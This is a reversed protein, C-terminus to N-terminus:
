HLLSHMDVVQLKVSFSFLSDVTCVVVLTNGKPSWALGTILSSFSHHGVSEWTKTDWIIISNDRHSSVLYDGNPSWEVVIAEPQHETL